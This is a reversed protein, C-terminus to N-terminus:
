GSPGLPLSPGQDVQRLVLASSCTGAAWNRPCHSRPQNLANGMLGFPYQPEVEARDLARYRGGDHNWYLTVSKYLRRFASRVLLSESSTLHEELPSEDEGARHRVDKRRHATRRQKDFPIQQYEHEIELCEQYVSELFGCGKENYVEFCAGIIKYCEDKFILDNTM